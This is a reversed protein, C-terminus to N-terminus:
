STKSIVRDVWRTAEGTAKEIEYAIGGGATNFKNFKIEKKLKGGQSVMVVGRDRSVSLSYGRYARIM